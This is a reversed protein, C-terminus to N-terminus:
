PDASLAAREDLLEDVLRISPVGGYEAITRRVVALLRVDADIIDFDRMPLCRSRGVPAACNV